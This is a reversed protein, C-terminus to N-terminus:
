PLQRTKQRKPRKEVPVLGRRIKMLHEDKTNERVAPRSLIRHQTEPTWFVELRKRARTIATYFISHSISEENADTIVFKM